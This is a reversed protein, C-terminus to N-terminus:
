PFVTAREGGLFTLVAATAAYEPVAFVAGETRVPIRGDPFPLLRADLLRVQPCIIGVLDPASPMCAVLSRLAMLVM